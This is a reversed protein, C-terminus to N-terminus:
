LGEVYPRDNRFDKTTSEPTVLQLPQTTSPWKGVGAGTVVVERLRYRDGGVVSLRTGQAM